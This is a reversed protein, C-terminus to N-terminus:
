TEKVYLVLDQVREVCVPKGAPIERDSHAQWYEGHVFVTGTPDLNTRAVGIEGVLTELGTIPKATRARMGLSGLFITIIGFAAAVAVSLAPAVRRPGHLLLIAGLALLVTGTVGSVMHTYYKLEITLLLIALAILTLGYWTPTDEYLGYAGICILLVGIVGPAVLGPAHMEWYVGLAGLVLLVFAVNPDFIAVPMM